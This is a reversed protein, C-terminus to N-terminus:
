TMLVLAIYPVLNFVVIAIKYNAVYQFYQRSLDAESLGFMKGHIGTSMGRLPGAFVSALLLLGMNIVTCWGLFARLTEMSSM